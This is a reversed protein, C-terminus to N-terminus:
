KLVNLPLLSAFYVSVILGLFRQSRKEKCIDLILMNPPGQPSRPPSGSCTASLTSLGSVLTSERTQRYFNPLTATLLYKNLLRPKIEAVM